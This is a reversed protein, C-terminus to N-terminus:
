NDLMKIKLEGTSAVEVALDYTAIRPYPEKFVRELPTSGSDDLSTERPSRLLYCPFNKLDVTEGRYYSAKLEKDWCRITYKWYRTSITRDFPDPGLVGDNFYKKKRIIDVTEIRRAIRADM